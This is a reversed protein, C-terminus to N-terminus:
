GSLALGIYIACVILGLLIVLWATSYPQLRNHRRSPWYPRPGRSLSGGASILLNARNGVNSDDDIDTEDLEELLRAFDDDGASFESPNYPEIGLQTLLHEAREPSYRRMQQKLYVLFEEDHLAEGLSPWRRVLHQPNHDLIRQRCRDAVDVLDMEVARVGALVLLKDRIGNQGRLSAARALQLYMGLARDLSPM